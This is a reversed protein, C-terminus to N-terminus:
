CQSRRLWALGGLGLGILALSAPEPLPQDLLAARGQFIAEGSGAASAYYYSLVGDYAQPDIDDYILLRPMSNIDLILGILPDAGTGAQFQTVSQEDWAPVQDFSFGTLSWQWVSNTQNGTLEMAIKGNSGLSLDYTLVDARAVSLCAVAALMSILLLSRKNM